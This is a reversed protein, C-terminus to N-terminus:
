CEVIDATCVYVQLKVLDKMELGSRRRTFLVKWLNLAADAYCVQDSYQQLNDPQMLSSLQSATLNSLSSSKQWVIGWGSFRSLSFSGHSSLESFM